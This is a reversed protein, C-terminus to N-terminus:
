LDVWLLRVLTDLIPENITNLKEPEDVSVVQKADESSVSASVKLGTEIDQKPQQIDITQFNQTIDSTEVLNFMGEKNM